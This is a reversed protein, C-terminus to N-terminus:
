NSHKNANIPLSQQCQTCACSIALITSCTTSDGGTVLQRQRCVGAWAYASGAISLMSGEQACQLVLTAPRAGFILLAHQGAALQQASCLAGLAQESNQLASHLQQMSVACAAGMRRDSINSNSSIQISYRAASCRGAQLSEEHVPLSYQTTLLMALAEMVLAM